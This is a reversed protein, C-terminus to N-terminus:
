YIDFSSRQLSSRHLTPFKKISHTILYNRCNKQPDVSHSRIKTGRPECGGTLDTANHLHVTSSSTTTYLLTHIYMYQTQYKSRSCLPAPPTSTIPHPLTLSVAQITITIYYLVTCYLVTCYLVTCYLVTYYLITCYLTTYYLPNCYLVTCYM